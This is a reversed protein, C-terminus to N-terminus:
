IFTMLLRLKRKKKLKTGTIEAKKVTNEPGCTLQDEPGGTRRDWLDEPRGHEGHEGHERTRQDEPGVPRGHEGTKRTRKRTRKRKQLEKCNKM